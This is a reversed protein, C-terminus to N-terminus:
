FDDYAKGLSYTRNKNDWTLVRGNWPDVERGSTYLVRTQGKLQIVMISDVGGVIATSGLVAHNGSRAFEKQPKGAHHILMIHTGSNRAVTRVAKLARKVERYNNESEVELLDFATDIIALEPKQELILDSFEKFLNDDSFPDGCHVYLEADAPVGLTRFSKAVITPHEELGFYHCTGKKTKRTFFPQGTLVSTCLQRAIVSKGAKPDAALLSVGATQLLGEVLWEIEADSTENYLEGIQKMHFAQPKIRPEHKAETNYISKVTTTVEAETFDRAITGNANLAPVLKDLAEDLTYLNQQFDRAAKAVANNRGGNVAGITLLELTTRALDGKKGEVREKPAPKEVPKPKIVLVKKGGSKVSVVEKSPFWFRCADKCKDDSQPWKAYLSYWTSVFTDYDTIPQDLVLIVRFRDDVKGNKEVRHNRTPAIIHSYDKFAHLADELSYGGDFDLAILPAQIFNAKNRYDDKFTALSYLGKTVLETLTKLRNQDCVQGQPDKESKFGVTIQM